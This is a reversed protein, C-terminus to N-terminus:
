IGWKDALKKLGKAFFDAPKDSNERLFKDKDAHYRRLREQYPLPQLKPKKRGKSVARKVVTTRM